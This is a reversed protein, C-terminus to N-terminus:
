LIYLKLQISLWLYDSFSGYIGRLGYIGSGQGLTSRYWIYEQAGKHEFTTNMISLGHDACFDLLLVGSQNLDPPGKRVIVGRWTEDGNSM